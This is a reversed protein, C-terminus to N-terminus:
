PLSHGFIQSRTRSVACVILLLSLTCSSVNNCALEGAVARLGFGHDVQKDLQLRRGDLNFEKWFSLVM